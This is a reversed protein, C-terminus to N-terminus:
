KQSFIQWVALGSYGYNILQERLSFYQEMFFSALEDKLALFYCMPKKRWVTTSPYEASPKIHLEWTM